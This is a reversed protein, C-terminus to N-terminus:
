FGVPSQLWLRSFPVKPALLTLVNGYIALSTAKTLNSVKSQPPRARLCLPLDSWGMPDRRIGIKRVAKIFSFLWKLQKQFNFTISTPAGFDLVSSSVTEQYLRYLLLEPKFFTPIKGPRLLEWEETFILNPLKLKQSETELIEKLNGIFCNCSSSLLLFGVACFGLSYSSGPRNPTPHPPPSLLFFFLPM